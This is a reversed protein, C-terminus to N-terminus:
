QPAGAPMSAMRAARSTNFSSPTASSHRFPLGEIKLSQRQPSFVQPGHQGAKGAAAGDGAGGRRQLDARLPGCARMAEAGFPLVDFPLLFAELAQQNRASGSKAVGFMLGAGTVASLALEQAPFDALRALVQPPRRNILDICINADLLRMMPGAM